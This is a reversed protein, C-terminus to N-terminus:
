VHFAGMGTRPAALAYLAMAMVHQQDLFRSREYQAALAAELAATPLRFQVFCILSLALAM